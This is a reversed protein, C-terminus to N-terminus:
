GSPATTVRRLTLNLRGGGELLTSTGPYIRDVGHFWLRSEGELVVVDGSSLRLSRTPHKRTAGGVRFLAQDGLSVSVVPASFDGEDQDVHLGLRSGADYRNILCAEPRYPLGTVTDRLAILADPIAPWPRGTEPHRDAYRYGARDTLWGLPGCNSMRVSMTKDGGPMTPRYLPAEALLAHIRDRLARQAALDLHGPLLRM